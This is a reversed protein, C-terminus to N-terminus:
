KGETRFTHNIHNRILDAITLIYEIKKANHIPYIYEITCRARKKFNCTSKKRVICSARAVTSFVYRTSSRGEVQIM